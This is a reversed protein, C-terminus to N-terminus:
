RTLRGVLRLLGSRRHSVKPAADILIVKKADPKDVGLAWNACNLAASPRRRAFDWRISTNDAQRSETPVPLVTGPSGPHPAGRGRAGEAAAAHDAEPRRAPSRCRRTRDRLPRASPACTHSRARPKSASGCYAQSPQGCHLRSEEGSGNVRPRRRITWMRVFRPCSKFRRGRPLIPPRGV